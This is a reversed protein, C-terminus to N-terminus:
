NPRDAQLELIHKKWSGALPAAMARDFLEADDREGKYLGVVDAVTVKLPHAEVLTMEDGAAMEGEEDIAFYIGSRNSKWFLKVMDPRGFRLALKACPMRPQTVRLLTTGLRFLDGIHVQDETLAEVTLNEGFNGYSLEAEPLAKRWYSYHDLAYAYIAKNPGGHVTLDAQRDGIINHGKVAVRGAVPEKYIATIVTGRPTEVARPQGVNLSTLKM